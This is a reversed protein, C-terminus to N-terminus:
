QQDAGGASGVTLEAIGRVRRKKRVVSMKRARTVNRMMQLVCPEGCVVTIKGFSKWCHGTGM